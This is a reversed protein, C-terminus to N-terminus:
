FLILCAVFNSHTHIVSNM